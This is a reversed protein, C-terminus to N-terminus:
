FHYVINPSPWKSVVNILDLGVVSLWSDCDCEVLGDSEWDCSTNWICIFSKSAHRKIFSEHCLHKSVKDCSQIRHPWNMGTKQYWWCPSRGFSLSNAVVIDSQIITIIIWEERRRIYAILCIWHEDVLELMCNTHINYLVMSQGFEVREETEPSVSSSMFFRSLEWDTGWYCPIMKQFFVCEVNM